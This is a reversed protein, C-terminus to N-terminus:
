RPPTNFMLRDRSRACSGDRSRARSWTWVRRSEVLGKRTRIVRHRLVTKRYQEMINWLSDCKSHSVHSQSVTSLIYVPLRSEPIDDGKGDSKATM